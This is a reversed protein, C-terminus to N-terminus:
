RCTCLAPAFSIGAMREGEKSKKGCFVRVLVAAQALEWFNLLSLWWWATNTDKNYCYKHSLQKM